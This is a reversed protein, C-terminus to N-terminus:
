RSFGYKLTLGAMGMDLNFSTVGGFPMKVFPEIIFQYEERKIVYGASLNLFRAFDFRDFPSFSGDHTVSAFNTQSNGNFTMEAMVEGYSSYSQMLYVFSSIGASVYVQSKAADRLRYSVNVPIDIAYFEFDTYERQYLVNVRDAAGINPLSADAYYDGRGGTFAMEDFRFQNYVIAGGTSISVNHALAWDGTLGASFGMGQSIEGPVFAKMPGAGFRYSTSSEQKVAPMYDAAALWGEDREALIRVVVSETSQEEAPLAIPLDDAAQALEVALVQHLQEQSIEVVQGATFEEKPEASRSETEHSAEALISSAERHTPFEPKSDRDKQATMARKDAVQEGTGKASEDGASQQAAAPRSDYQETDSLVHLSDKDSLMQWHRLTFLGVTSVLLIVAAAKAWLPIFAVMRRNSGPQLRSKMGAWAQEDVPEQYNDFAERVNNAFNEDFPKM